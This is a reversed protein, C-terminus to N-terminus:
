DQDMFRKLEAQRRRKAEAMHEPHALAWEEGARQAAEVRNLTERRQDFFRRQEIPDEPMEDPLSPIGRGIALREQELRQYEADPDPSAEAWAAHMQEIDDPLLVVVGYKRSNGPISHKEGLREGIIVGTLDPTARGQRYVETGDLIATLTDGNLHFEITNGKSSTKQFIKM